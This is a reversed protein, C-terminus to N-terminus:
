NRVKLLPESVMGKLADLIKGKALEEFEEFSAGLDRATFEAQAVQFGEHFFGYKLLNGTSLKKWQVPQKALFRECFDVKRALEEAPTLAEGKNLKQLVSHLM